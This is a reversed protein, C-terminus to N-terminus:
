LKRTLLQHVRAPWSWGASCKILAKSLKIKQKTARSFTVDDDTQLARHISKAIERMLKRFDWLEIGEQDAAVKADATWDWTVAVKKYSGENFGYEALKQVVAPTGFKHAIFYGLTRRM